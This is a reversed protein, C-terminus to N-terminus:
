MMRLNLMRWICKVLLLCTSVYVNPNGFYVRMPICRKDRFEVTNCTNLHTGKLLMVTIYTKTFFFSYQNISYMLNLNFNLFKKRFKLFLLLLFILIRDLQAQKNQISFTCFILIFVVILCILIASHCLSPSLKRCPIWNPFTKKCTIWTPSSQILSEPQLVKCLHNMHSLKTYIIWSPSTKKVVSEPQLAKYLHNPHSLKTHTIWTPSSQILSEPPLAKYLHNLNSLKTYTIWTPSSQILSEPQLAKYLHNLNCLKTYIIWNSSNTKCTIWTPSSKM